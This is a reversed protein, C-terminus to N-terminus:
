DKTAAIKDPDVTVGQASIRHGLYGLESRGFECKPLKAFLLHSRLISLVMQLHHLHEEWGRSYVLVDDFFVMVYKRLVTRFVSNMLAQFTAPANTLGFPM